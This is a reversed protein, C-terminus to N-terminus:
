RGSHCPPNRWRSPYGVGWIMESPFSTVRGSATLNLQEPAMPLVGHDPANLTREAETKGTSVAGPNDSDMCLHRMIQRKESAGDIHDKGNTTLVSRDKVLDASPSPTTGDDETPPSDGNGRFSPLM